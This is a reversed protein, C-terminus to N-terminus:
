ISGRRGQSTAARRELKPEFGRWIRATRVGYQFEAVAPTLDLRCQQFNHDLSDPTQWHKPQAAALFRHVTQNQLPRSAVTQCAVKPLLMKWDREERYGSSCGARKSATRRRSLWWRRWQGAMSSSRLVYRRSFCPKWGTCGGFVAWLREDPRRSGLTTMSPKTEMGPM